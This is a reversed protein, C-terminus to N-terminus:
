VFHASVVAIDTVIDNDQFATVNQTITHHSRVKANRATMYERYEVGRGHRKVDTEVIRPLSQRKGLAMGKLPQEKPPEEILLQIQCRYCADHM